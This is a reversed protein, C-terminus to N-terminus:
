RVELCDVTKVQESSATKPEFGVQSMFTKRPKNPTQTTRHLYRGQSPGVGRGLFGVSLRINIFQLLIFSKVCVSHEQLLLLFYLSNICVFGLTLTTRSSGLLAQASKIFFSLETAQTWLRVIGVLRGDSTPSTPALKIAIQFYYDSTKRGWKEINV